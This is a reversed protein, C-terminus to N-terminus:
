AAKTHRIICDVMEAVTNIKEAETDPIEVDFVEEVAMVLEVMDLSDARLDNSLHHHEHVGDRAIGLQESVINLVKELIVPDTKM